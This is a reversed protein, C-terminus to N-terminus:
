GGLRLKAEIRAKEIDEPTLVEEMKRAMGMYQKRALQSPAKIAGVLFRVLLDYDCVDKQRGHFGNTSWDESENPDPGDLDTLAVVKVPNDMLDNFEEQIREAEPTSEQTIPYIPFLHIMLYDLDNIDSDPRERDPLQSLQEKALYLAKSIIWQGRPSKLFKFADDPMATAM